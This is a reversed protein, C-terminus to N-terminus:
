TGTCFGIVWLHRTAYAYTLLCSPPSPPSPVSSAGLLVTYDRGIQFDTVGPMRIMNLLTLLIKLLNSPILYAPTLGVALGFSSLNRGGGCVCVRFECKWMQMLLSVRKRTNKARTAFAPSLHRTGDSERSKRWSDRQRPTSSVSTVYVALSVAAPPDSLAAFPSLGCVEVWIPRQRHIEVAGAWGLRGWFPCLESSDRARNSVAGVCSSVGSQLAQMGTRLMALFIKGM